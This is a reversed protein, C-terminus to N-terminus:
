GGRALDGNLDHYKKLCCRRKISYEEFEIEGVSLQVYLYKLQRVISMLEKRYTEGSLGLNINMGVM